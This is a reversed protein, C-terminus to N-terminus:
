VNWEEYSVRKGSKKVYDVYEFWRPENSHTSQTKLYSMTDDEAIGKGRALIANAKSPIYKLDYLGNDKNWQPPITLFETIISAAQAQSHERALTKAASRDKVSLQPIAGFVRNFESKYHEIVVATAEKNSDKKEDENKSDYKYEGCWWDQGVVPYGATITLHSPISPPFRRCLSNDPFYYICRECKQTIGM